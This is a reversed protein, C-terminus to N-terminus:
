WSVTVTETDQYTGAALNPQAPDTAYYVPISQALGSGVFHQNNNWIQRHAADSYIRYRLMSDGTQAKMQHWGASDNAGQFSLSYPTTNTCRLTIQQTQSLQSSFNGSMAVDPASDIRCDPKLNATLTITPNNQTSFDVATPWLGKMGTGVNGSILATIVDSYKGPAPPAGKIMVPNTVFHVHAINNYPGRFLPNWVSVDGAPGSGGHCPDDPEHGTVQQFMFPVFSAGKGGWAYEVQQNIQTVCIQTAGKKGLCFKIPLNNPSLQAQMPALALENGSTTNSQSQLTFIIHQGLTTTDNAISKCWISLPQQYDQSTTTLDLPSIAGGGNMDITENQWAFDCVHDWSVTYASAFSVVFLPCLACFRYFNVILKPM